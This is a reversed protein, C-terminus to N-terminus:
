AFFRIYHPAKFYSIQSIVRNSLRSINVRIAHEVAPTTSDTYTIIHINCGFNINPCQFMIRLTRIKFGLSAIYYNFIIHPNKFLATIKGLTFTPCPSCQLLRLLLHQIKYLRRHLVQLFFQPCFYLVFGLFAM